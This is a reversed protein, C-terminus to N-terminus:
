LNQIGAKFSAIVWFHVPDQVFRQKARKEEVALAEDSQGPLMETLLIEM